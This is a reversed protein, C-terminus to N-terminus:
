NYGLDRAGKEFKDRIVKTEINKFNESLFPNFGNKAFIYWAICSIFGKNQNVWEYGGSKNLTYPIAHTAKNEIFRSIILHNLQNAYFYGRQKDGYAQYACAIHGTGDNWFNNISIDPGHYFGMVKDGKIEIIKRYRFDFEPIDLLRADKAGFALVRWTYLDLPLGPRGNLENEVWTKIKQAYFDEGCLKLAVYCDINGEYHGTSEHLHNDGQRWGHQIYGGHEAEKYFSLLLNKIIKVLSNYRNSNYKLEYNKCAILLWAMDGIWRDVRNVPVRKTKLSAWQYFGRAEGKYYFNQLQIDTNEKNTANAYYDLIREAREKENKLTFAIAVLSNNFTQAEDDEQSPLINQDKSSIDQIVRLYELALTDEPVILSDRRQAFGIGALTSDSDLTSSFSSNLGARGVGIEDIWITGADKGSLAFSFKSFNGFKGDGGWAYETDKLYIVIHKWNGSPNNLPTVRRFVSGRNDTFKLELNNTQGHLARIFFVVPSNRDYNGNLPIDFNFWGGNLPLTYDIKLGDNHLGKFNIKTVITNDDLKSLTWIVSKNWNDSILYDITDSNIAINEQALSKAFLFPLLIFYVLKKM